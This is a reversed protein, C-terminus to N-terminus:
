SNAQAIQLSHIPAPGVNEGLMRMGELAIITAANEAWWPVFGISQYLQKSEDCM